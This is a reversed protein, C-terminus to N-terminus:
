GHDAFRIPEAERSAAVAAEPGAVWAQFLRFGLAFVVPGIFLGILGHAFLGGIAGVFVVALPVGGGRAMLYPKLVSDILAVLVCWALFLFAAPLSAASFAWIAAGLLVIGPGIQVIALLFCILTLFAAGPVHLAVFGIGALTSQILATGIIGRAVGRVTQLTLEVLEPGRGGVLRVAVAQALGGEERAHALLIGTIAIAVLFNLIGFGAGAVLSFLWGALMKLQPAVEDLASGLSDLSLRWFRDLPPGIVPWGALGEPPPPLAITGDALARALSTVNAVLARSLMGLPVILLALLLFSVLFAALRRRDGLGLRLRQYLPHIAIAIIMGWVVPVLFPLAITFCWFILLILLGVRIVAEAATRSIALDTPQTTMGSM